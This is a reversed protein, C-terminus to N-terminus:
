SKPKLSNVIVSANMFVVELTEVDLSELNIGKMYNMWEDKQQPNGREWIAEELFGIHSILQKRDQEEKSELGEAEVRGLAEKYEEESYGMNDPDVEDDPIIDKWDFDKEVPEKVDKGHFRDIERNAWEDEDRLVENLNEVESPDFWARCYPCGEDYVQDLEETDLINGCHPCEYAPEILNEKVLKM